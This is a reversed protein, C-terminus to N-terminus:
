PSEFSSPAVCHFIVGDDNTRALSAIRERIPERIPAPGHREDLLLIEAASADVGAAGWGLSHNVACLDSVVRSIGRAPADISRVDANVQRSDDRLFLFDDETKAAANLLLRVLAGINMKMAAM